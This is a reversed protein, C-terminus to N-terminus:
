RKFVVARREERNVRAGVSLLWKTAMGAPCNHAILPRVGKMTCISRM